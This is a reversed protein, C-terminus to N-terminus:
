KVILKFASKLSTATAPRHRGGAREAARPLSRRRGTRTPPRAPRTSWTSSRSRRGTSRSTTTARALGRGASTPPNASRSARSSAGRGCGRRRIRAGRARRAPLPPAAQPISRSVLTFGEGGGPAALPVVRDGPNDAQTEALKACASSSAGPRPRTARDRHDSRREPESVSAAACSCGSTAWGTSCTRRSTSGPPRRSSSSSVDRGGRSAPSPARHLLRADQRLGAAGARALLRRAAGRDARQGSRPVAAHRGDGRAALGRVGRRGQRRRGHAVTPQEFVSRSTRPCARRRTRTTRSCSRRTSTSLAGAPRRGCEDLASTYDDDLRVADLRGQETDIAAKVGAETGLVVFGDFVAGANTEKAEDM